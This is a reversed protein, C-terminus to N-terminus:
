LKEYRQSMGMFVSRMFTQGKQLQLLREKSEEYSVMMAVNLSIARTMTPVAGRWLTSQNGLFITEPPNEKENPKKNLAQNRASIRQATKNNVYTAGRSANCRRCSSVLNSMSDDGGADHEILHDAQFTTDWEKGCWNCDPHGEMLAARNARYQPTTKRNGAM